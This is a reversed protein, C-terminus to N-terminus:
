KVTPRLHSIKANMNVTTVLPALKSGVIWDFRAYLRGTRHVCVPGLSRFIERLRAGQPRQTQSWSYCWLNNSNNQTLASRLRLIQHHEPMLNKTAASKLMVLSLYNFFLSTIKDLYKNHTTKDNKALM